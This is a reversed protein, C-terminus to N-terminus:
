FEASRINQAIMMTNPTIAKENAFPDSAEM